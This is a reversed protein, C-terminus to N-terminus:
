WYLFDDDRPLTQHAQRVMFRGRPDKRAQTISVWYWSSIAVSRKRENAIVSKNNLQL